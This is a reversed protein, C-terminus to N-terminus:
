KIIYFLDFCLKQRTVRIPMHAPARCWRGIVAACDLLNQSWNQLLQRETCWCYIAKEWFSKRDRITGQVAMSAVANYLTFGTAIIPIATATFTSNGTNIPGQLLQKERWSMVAFTLLVHGDFLGAGKQVDLYPILVNWVSVSWLICCVAYCFFGFPESARGEVEKASELDSAVKWGSVAKICTRELFQQDSICVLHLLRSFFTQHLM